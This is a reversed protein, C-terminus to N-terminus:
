LSTRVHWLEPFFSMELMGKLYGVGATGGTGRKFGIVREVTTVHRFRWQRFYDEMDVLEEALQYLDFYKESHRYIELFAAEVSPAHVHPQSFDRDLVAPDIPLGRRAMLRLAEDYFSPAHLLETLWRELDPRHAHPAIMGRNKNGLLFEIARYQFSQFGSSHGLQGRFEMYESPTLTSLVDWAQILQHMIATVRALMKFAPSLDDRRLSDRAATLEHLILKMWLETTQHQVIFLLENHSTSRPHQATLVADLALYDGYSMEGAFATHAGEALRTRDRTPDDSM